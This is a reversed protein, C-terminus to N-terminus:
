RESWIPGAGARLRACRSSSSGRRSRAVAWIHRALLAAVALAALLAAAPAANVYRYRLATPRPSGGAIATGLELASRGSRARHPRRRPPVTGDIVIANRSRGRSNVRRRGARRDASGACSPVSIRATGPGMSSRSRTPASSSRSAGDRERELPPLGVLARRRPPHVEAASRGRRDREVYFFWDREGGLSGSIGDISPVLSGRRADVGQVEREVAQIATSARLSRHGRLAGAGGRDRTM